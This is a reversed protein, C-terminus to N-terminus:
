KVKSVLGERSDRIQGKIDWLTRSEFKKKAKKNEAVFHETEKDFFIELGKFKEMLVLKNKSM